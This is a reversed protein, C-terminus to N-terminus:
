PSAVIATGDGSVSLVLDRREGDSFDGAHGRPYYMGSITWITAGTRDVSTQAIRDPDYNPVFLKLALAVAWRFRQATRANALEGILRTANSGVEPRMVRTFYGTTLIMEVSQAVYAFGILRKGTRRSM